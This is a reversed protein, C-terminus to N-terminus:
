ITEVFQWLKRVGDKCNQVGKSRFSLGEFNIDIYSITGITNDGTHPDINVKHPSIVPAINAAVRLAMIIDQQSKFRLPVANHTFFGEVTIAQKYENLTVQLVFRFGGGYVKDGLLLLTADYKGRDKTAPTPAEGASLSTNTSITPDAFLPVKDYEVSITNRPYLTRIVVM